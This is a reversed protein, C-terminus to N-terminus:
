EQNKVRKNWTRWRGHILKKTEIDTYGSAANLYESIQGVKKPKGNALKYVESYHMCCSSKSFVSLTKRKRDIEFIGFYPGQVLRTFSPSFVFRNRERDYLYVRYSTGGYGGNAGDAVALDELGDFNFDELYVSSWKGNIKDKVAAIEPRGGDDVSIQTDRLHITQFPKPSGKRFLSVETKGSWLGYEVKEASIAVDYKNSITTFRFQQQAFATLNLLLFILLFPKM